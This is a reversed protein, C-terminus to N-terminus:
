LMSQKFTLFGALTPSILIAKRLAADEQTHVINIHFQNTLQNAQDIASAWNKKSEVQAAEIIDDIWTNKQRNREEGELFAFSNVNQPDLVEIVEMLLQKMHSEEHSHIGGCMINDSPSDDRKCHCLIRMGIVADFTHNKIVGPFPLRHNVAIVHIDKDQLIPEELDAAWIELHPYEEKLIDAFSIRQDAWKDTWESSGEGLFLIKRHKMWFERESQVLDRFLKGDFTNPKTKNEYNSLLSQPLSNAIGAWVLLLAIAVFINRISLM